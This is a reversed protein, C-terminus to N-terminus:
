VFPKTNRHGFFIGEGNGFIGNGFAHDPLFKQFEKEGDQDSGKELLHVIGYVSQDDSSKTCIPFRRNGTDAARGGLNDIQDDAEKHSQGSTKGNNNRLKETCFVVLMHFKGEMGGIGKRDDSAHHQPQDADQKGRFDQVEHTCRVFQHAAGGEIHANVERTKNKDKNIIHPSRNQTRKSIGFSRQIIQDETRQDIDEQINQEDGDKMQVHCANGDGGQQGLGTGANQHGSGQHVLNGADM